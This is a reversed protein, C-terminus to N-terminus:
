LWFELLAKPSVGKKGEKVPLTGRSVNYKGNRGDCKTHFMDFMKTSLSDLM